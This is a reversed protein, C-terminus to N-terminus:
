RAKRRLLRFYMGKEPLTFRFEPGGGLPEGTEADTMRAAEPLTVTLAGGDSAPVWIGLYSANAYINTATRIIGSFARFLM